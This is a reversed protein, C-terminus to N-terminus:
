SDSFRACCHSFDDSSRYGFIRGSKASIHGVRQLRVPAPFGCHEVGTAPAAVRHGQLPQREKTQSELCGSIAGARLLNCVLYFGLGLFATFLSV